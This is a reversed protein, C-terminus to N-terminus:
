STVVVWFDKGSGVYTDMKLMDDDIIDVGALLLTRTGDANIGWTSVTIDQTGLRHDVIGHPLPHGSYKV